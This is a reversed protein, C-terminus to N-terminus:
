RNSASGSSTMSLLVQAVGASDRQIARQPV